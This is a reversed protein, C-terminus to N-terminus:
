FETGIRDAAARDKEPVFHAYIRLTTSPDAHGLRGSVTRIDDGAALMRTALAHRLDHLRVSKPLDADDRVAGWRRSVWNPRWPVSGSPDGAFLFPDSIRRVGARAARQDQLAWFWLLAGATREDLALRKVRGTKTGKVQPQQGPLDVVSRSMVVVRETLDFDSRCLACLEGRRAGTTAALRLLMSLDPDSLAVALARGIEAPTPPVIEFRRLKPPSAAMAVNAPVLEWKVAQKLAGRIVAHVQRVTAPDLRRKSQSQGALMAQYLEDLDRGRLEALQMTGFAPTLYNDISQRYGRLTTPSLDHAKMAMWRELLAGVTGEPAATSHNLLYDAAWWANAVTGSVTAQEYRGGGISVRVRWVDPRVESWSGFEPKSKRTGIEDPLKM